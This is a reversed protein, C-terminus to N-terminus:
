YKLIKRTAFFGAAVIVLLILPIEITEVTQIKSKMKLKNKSQKEINAVISKMSGSDEELYFTGGTNEVAKKMEEENETTMDKTGIGYVTIGDHVCLDAAELITMIPTGQIDNDTSFIVTRSREIEMDGFNIAAAALGDGILSSGRTENDVLTGANVYEYLYYDTETYLYYDSTEDMHIQLDIADEVRDLVDMIYEYDDTLPTLLVPSTNFVVVGFREGKLNEVTDKLQSILKKNLKNVSTSVDICLIIDRNYKNEEIIRKETPRAMLFFSLVIAFMLTFSLLYNYIRFWRLKKKYYSEYEIFSTSAVKKGGTYAKKKKVKVFSYIFLIVFVAIGIYIVFQNKLEM